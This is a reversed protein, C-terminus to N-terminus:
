KVYLSPDLLFPEKLKDRGLIKMGPRGHIISENGKLFDICYDICKMGYSEYKKNSFDGFLINWIWGYKESPFSVIFCMPTKPNVGEFLKGPFKLVIKIQNTLVLSRRISNLESSTTLYNIDVFPIFKNKFTTIIPRSFNRQWLVKPDSLKPDLDEGFFKMILDEKKFVPVIGYISSWKLIQSWGETPTAVLGDKTYSVIREETEENIQFTEKFSHFNLSEDKDSIYFIPTNIYKDILPNKTINESNIDLSKSSTHSDRLVSKAISKEGDDSRWFYDTTVENSDDLLFVAQKIKMRYLNNWLPTIEDFMTFWKDSLDGSLETNIAEYIEQFLSMPFGINWGYKSKISKM